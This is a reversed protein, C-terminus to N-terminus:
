NIITTKIQKNQNFSNTNGFWTRLRRTIEFTPKMEWLQKTGSKNPETWYSIFKSLEQRAFSEEIGRKILHNLYEEQKEINDFFLRAESSPTVVRERQIERETETKIEIEIEPLTLSPAKLGKSPAKDKEKLNLLIEKNEELQKIISINVNDKINNSIPQHKTKNLIYIWSEKYLIKKDKIFKELIIQWNKIGTLPAILPSPLEYLGSIHSYENTLLFIWLLKEEANLSLFWNDQWIRTKIQKYESM